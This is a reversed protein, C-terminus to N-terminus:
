EALIKFHLSPNRFSQILVISPLCVHSQTTPELNTKTTNEDLSKQTGYTTLPWCFKLFMSLSEVASHLSQGAEATLGVWVASLWVGPTALVTGLLTVQVMLLVISLSFTSGLVETLGM